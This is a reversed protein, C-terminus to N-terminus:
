PYYLLYLVERTLLQGLNSERYEMPDRTEGPTIGLHLALLLDWASSPTVGFCLYVILLPM